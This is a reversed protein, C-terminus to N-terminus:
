KISAAVACNQELLNRDAGAQATAASDCSDVTRAFSINSGGNGATVTCDATAECLETCNKYNVADPTIFTNYSYNSDTCEVGGGCACAALLMAAAPVFSVKILSKGWM